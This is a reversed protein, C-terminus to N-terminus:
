NSYRTACLQGSTGGNGSYEFAEVEDLIEEYLSATDWVGDEDDEDKDAGPADEDKVEMNAAETAGDGVSRSAGMAPAPAAEQVAVPGSYAHAAMNDDGRDDL